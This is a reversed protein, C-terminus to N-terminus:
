SNIESENLVGCSIMLNMISKLLEVHQQDTLEYNQHNLVQTAKQITHNTFQLLSAMDLNLELVEQDARIIRLIVMNDKTLMQFSSYDLPNNIYREVNVFQVGYKAVLIELEIYLEQDTFDEQTFPNGHKLVYTVFKSGENGALLPFVRNVSDLFIIPFSVHNNLTSLLEDMRSFLFKNSQYHVTLDALSRQLDERSDFEQFIDLHTISM